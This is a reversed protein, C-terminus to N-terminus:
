QVGKAWFEGRWWKNRILTRSGYTLLVISVVLAFTSDLWWIKPNSEYIAASLLIGLSLVAVAASTIADKKMAPSKLAQSIKLKAIALGTLMLLSITSIILLETAKNPENSEVLHVLAQIGVILGILVMMAAIGVSAKKEKRYLRSHEQEEFDESWFRWLVLVSSWVDVFSELAYGLLSPSGALFALVIGVVGGLLTFGISVYSVHRARKVWPGRDFSKLMYVDDAENRRDDDGKGTM